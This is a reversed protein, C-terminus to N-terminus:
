MREHRIDGFFYPLADGRKQVDLTLAYHQLGIRLGIGAVDVVIGLQADFPDFANDAGYSVNAALHIDRWRLSDRYIQVLSILAVSRSKILIVM